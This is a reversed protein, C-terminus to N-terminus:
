GVVRVTDGYREQLKGVFTHYNGGLGTVLTSALQESPKHLESKFHLWKEKPRIAGNM